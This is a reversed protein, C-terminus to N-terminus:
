LSTIAGAQDVLDRERKENRPTATVEYRYVGKAREAKVMGRSKLRNLLPKTVFPTTTDPRNIDTTFITPRVTSLSAIFEKENVINKM